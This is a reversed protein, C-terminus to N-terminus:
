SCTTLPNACIWEKKVWGQITKGNMEGKLEIYDGCANIPMGYFEEQIVHLDKGHDYPKDKFSIKQGGYNRTGIQLVSQHVWGYQGPIDYADLPVGEDYGFPEIHDIKFWEGEVGIVHVVHELDTKMTTIVKGGPAKRVNTPTESPDSIYAEFDVMCDEMPIEESVVESGDNSDQEIIIKKEKQTENVKNTQGSSEIKKETETQSCAFIFFLLPLLNLNKM